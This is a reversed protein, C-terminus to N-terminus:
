KTAVAFIESGFDPLFESLNYLFDLQQNEILGKQMALQMQAHPLPKVFSTSVDIQEFGISGLLNRLAEPSYSHSQQMIAETESLQDLKSIFGLREGILRHISQNNPVVVFVKGNKRLFSHITQLAAFPDKIEHLVSSLIVTDFKLELEVENRLENLLYPFILVNENDQYKLSLDEYIPRLPELLVVKRVDILEPFLPKLGPGIELLDGTNRFLNRAIELIRRKRYHEQTREFPLILFNNFYDELNREM